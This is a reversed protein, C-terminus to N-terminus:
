EDNFRNEYISILANYIREYPLPLLLLRKLFGIRWSFSFDNIFRAPYRLYTWVNEPRAMYRNGNEIFKTLRFDGWLKAEKLTPSLGMRAIRSIAVNSEIDGIGNPFTKKFYEIFKQAGNQYSTIISLEDVLRGTDNAYICNSFVPVGKGDKMEFCRTSGCPECFMTELINVFLKIKSFLAENKGVDYLYGEADIDGNLLFPSNPVLGLYYGKVAVDMKAEAFIKELARQITGKHGIDVIAIRGHLNYPKFYALLANYEQYSNEVMDNKISEFFTSIDISDLFTEGSYVRDLELRCASLQEKYLEPKLGVAELFSRITIRFNAGWRHSAFIEELSPEKWILPVTFSRRSSYIYHSKFENPVLCDFARKITYGDRALFFVETIGECKLRSKLWQNFGLLLPGLLACGQKEYENLEASCNRICASLTRYTFAEDVSIMKPLASVAKQDNKIPYVHIGIALAELIDSRKSDGIHLLQSPKIELEQLVTRFLSGDRKRSGMECSVYLKKYGYIGCKDLMRMIIDASLYMDSILVVTKGEDVCSKFMGAVYANPRCGTLELEIELKLLEDTYSGFEDRLEEYIDTIFVPTGGAKRECSLEAQMRKEAFHSVNGLRRDFQREMLYFVDSPIAVSRKILTDFVDFSVYQYYQFCEKM